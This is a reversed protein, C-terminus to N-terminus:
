FKLIQLTTFHLNKTEIKWWNVKQSNQLKPGHSHIQYIQLNTFTLLLIQLTKEIIPGAAPSEKISVVLALTSVPCICLNDEQLRMCLSDTREVLLLGLLYSSVLWSALIHHPSGATQLCLPSAAAPCWSPRMQITWVDCM